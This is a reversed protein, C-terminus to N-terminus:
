CMMFQVLTDSFIATTYRKCVGRSTKHETFPHHLLYYSGLVEVTREQLFKKSGHFGGFRRIDLPWLDM